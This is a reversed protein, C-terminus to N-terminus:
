SCRFGSIPMRRGNAPPHGGFYVCFSHAGRRQEPSMYAPTGAVRPPITANGSSTESAGATASQLIALGFDLLKTGSHTVMINAPKLDRHVIGHRHMEVLASAIEGAYRLVQDVPMAGTALVQALTDGELYEMVLFDIGDYQGIDHLVCIHAHRLGAVAIAEYEFQQRLWGSERLPSLLFKIAVPRHLRTDRARYVRGMGGEGILAEIRYPGVQTGPALAPAGQLAAATKWVLQDFPGSRTEEELLSEVECRLDVDTGCAAALFVSRQQADRGLAAHYVRSIQRWRKPIM